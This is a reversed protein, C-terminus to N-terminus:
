RTESPTQEQIDELKANDLAVLASMRLRLKYFEPSYSSCNLKNSLNHVQLHPIVQNQFQALLEPHHDQILNCMLGLFAHPHRFQAAGKRDWEFFAKDVDGTPPAPDREFVTVRHGKQAMALATFMGCMGSGVMAIDHPM